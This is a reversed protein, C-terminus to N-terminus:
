QTQDRVREWGRPPDFRAQGVSADWADAAARSSHLAWPQEKDVDFWVMAAVKPFNRMDTTLADTIWRSKSGGSESSGIEALIIPKNSLADLAAYPRALADKFGRWYPAGWDLDPGTNYIDIGLWDVQDDGPYLAQFTADYRSRPADGITNPNWVWQVNSTDYRAFIARVHRWAALYDGVTNGNVGVGWPYTANDNMEHAFRLLVPQHFAALGRAWGDIYADNAGSLVATRLSWAADNSRGAWPEWTIMPVSGHAAVAALDAANFAGKWGGWLAYWHIIAATRRAAVEYEAIGSLDDPLAVQYYGIAIPRADPTQADAAIANMLLAAVGVALWHRADGM